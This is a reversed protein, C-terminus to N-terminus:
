GAPRVDPLGDAARKLAARYALYRASGDETLRCLTRPIKGRYTKEIAVYGATELKGLHAGLNGRTLGTEGLLYVFDAAEVTALIAMIMLRAPEHIVRDLAAIESAGEATAHDDM